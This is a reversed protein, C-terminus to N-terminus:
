ASTRSSSRAGEFYQERTEVLDAMRVESEASEKSPIHMSSQAAVAVANM